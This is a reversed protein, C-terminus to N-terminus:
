LPENQQYLNDLRKSLEDIDRDMKQDIVKSYHQTMTIRSHGLMRSVTEIPINNALTITTAFTHRAVHFHLTKEVGCMDAIEKLYSNVKQNSLRRFMSADAPMNIWSPNYREIILRAPALLPIAASVHTKTREINIWYRGLYQSLNKRKLAILDIYALGTYCSFVFFDRVLELRPSHLKKFIIRDLEDQNLYTRPVSKLRLRIGAFANQDVWRNDIAIRYMKKFIQIHKITTNNQCNKDTRVFDQFDIVFKKSISVLAIDQKRLCTHMFELLHNQCVRHKQINAKSFGEGKKHVMREIEMDFLEMLTEPVPNNQKLIYSARKLSAPLGSYHEAVALSEMVTKMFTKRLELLKENLSRNGIVEQYRSDWKKEDLFIHLSRETVDGKLYARMYLTGSHESRNKKKLYISITPVPIDPFSENTPTTKKHM